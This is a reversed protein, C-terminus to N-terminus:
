PRFGPPLEDGLRAESAQEAAVREAVEHARQERRHHDEEARLQDARKERAVEDPDVYGFHADVPLPSPELDGPQALHEHAACHWRRVRPPNAVPMGTPDTPRCHCIACEPLPPRPRGQLARNTAVFRDHEVQERTPMLGEQERARDLLARRGDDGVDELHDLADQVTRIGTFMLENVLRRTIRREQPDDIAQFESHDVEVLPDSSQRFPLRIEWRSM